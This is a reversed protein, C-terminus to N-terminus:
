DISENFGLRAALVANGPNRLVQGRCIVVPLDLPTLQFRELLDRVDPDRDIDLYKFPHGNRTLFAKIRLTDASRASGILLADGVGRAIVAVRRYIFATMLVEGVEVDDRILANMQDRSLEVVEGPESVSLRMLAPRGLVMSIDGTFHGAHVVAVLLDGFDSARIVEIAGAKIVFFSVDTQGGEILVEGRHIARTKGRMAIRALQSESLTPFLAPADPGSSFPVWPTTTETPM